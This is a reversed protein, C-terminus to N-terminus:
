SSATPVARRRWVRCGTLVGAAAVLLGLTAPEPVPTAVAVGVRGDALVYAFGAQGKDNFGERGLKLGVVTSGFLSDGTRIITDTAPNPGTLLASGGADLFGVFALMGSANISPSGLYALPFPFNKFPLGVTQAITTTNGSQGIYVGNDTGSLAGFFAVAGASNISPYSVDYLHSFTTGSTAVPTIQGATGAFLGDGGADLTAGFTVIGAQNIAPPFFTDFNSNSNLVVTNTVGGAVTFIGQAGGDQTASFAIVGAQNIVPPSFSAFDSNNSLAITNVPGGNGTFVGDVGPGLRGTFAVVGGANISVNPTLLAFGGDGTVAIPTLAGGSGTFVGTGGADITSSFAVVGGASIAPPSLFDFSDAKLFGLPGSSDAVNTYTYTAAASSGDLPGTLLAALLVVFRIGKM